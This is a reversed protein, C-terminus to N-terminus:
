SGGYRVLYWRDKLESISAVPPSPYGYGSIYAAPRTGNPHYEVASDYAGALDFRIIGDRGRTIMLGFDEHFPYPDRKGRVVLVDPYREPSVMVRIGPPIEGTRSPWEDSLAIAAQEFRPLIASVQRRMRWEDVATRTAILAIWTILVGYFALARRATIHRVSLVLLALTSSVGLGCLAILAVVRKGLGNWHLSRIADIMGLADAAEPDNARVHEIRLVVRAKWAALTFSADTASWLLLAAICSLSIVAAVATWFSSRRLVSRPPESQQIQNM